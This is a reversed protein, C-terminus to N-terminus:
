VATLERVAGANFYAASPHHIVIAATSQEPVIQFAETLETGIAREADLLEWVTAHQALDPCAGYGWSYRKGRGAPLGLETRIRQHLTEALAEASQVAFGHLFYSESYDAAAQLADIAHSVDRGMTVVQLAIVDSAGGADPERLYDALCLHEGGVQRTFAFRAIERRPDAPDYVIVDDGSGAAPFYGYVARPALLTGAEARRQYATLRPTFEERVLREFEAGKASAAGWSLRYLSKLDFNPWLERVDIDDLIRRGLFPARPPEAYTLTARATRGDGVPAAAAARERERAARAEEHVRARFAERTGAGATLQDVIELGEFADKAYFVGPEFLREDDVFTIRRGFDRNIAAGGVVIPFSLGRADQEKVCVPMQKSTSVLLASLGIADADVEV